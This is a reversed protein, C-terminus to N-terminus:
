IWGGVGRAQRLQLAAKGTVRFLRQSQLALELQLTTDSAGDKPEVRKEVDGTVHGRKSQLMPYTQRHPSFQVCTPSLRSVPVTTATGTVLAAPVCVTEHCVANQLKTGIARLVMVWGDPITIPAGM